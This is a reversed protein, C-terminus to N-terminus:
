RGCARFRSAPRRPQPRRECSTRRPCRTGGATACPSPATGPTSPGCVCATARPTSSSAGNRCPRSGDPPVMWDVVFGVDDFVWSAKRYVAVGRLLGDGDRVGYCVYRHRPHDVFRWNMYDADRLASAVWEGCCRDYVWKAQHDFREIVEVEPPPEVTGEVPEHVLVIQNRVIDYDLFRDGIRAAEEIPLGFHVWDREVGGYNGFYEHAVTLFLGPRKLGRRHDPHSMSDVCHVFTQVTEEVWTRIPVGAFQAVVKGDFTGVWIRRGAPNARFTWEWEDMERPRFGPEKAFTVNFTELLSEEDGDRFERIEYDGM